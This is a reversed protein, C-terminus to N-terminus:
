RRASTAGSSWRGAPNARSTSSSSTVAPGCCRASTCIATAASAAARRDAPGDRRATAAQIEGGRALAAAAEDQLPTPLEGLQKALMALSDGAQDRMTQYLSRQYLATFPEPAFAPDDVAALARHLQPRGSAWCIRPISTVASRCEGLTEPAARPRPCRPPWSRPWTPAGSAPPLQRVHGRARLVHGVQDLTYEWADGQNTVFQQLIALAAPEGASASLGALRRRRARARLRRRDTGPRDRPRPQHGARAPPLGEPDAPRRLRHQHQEARQPRAASGTRRRAHAGRFAPTPHASVFATRGDSAAARRRGRELLATDFGPVYLADYLLWHPGDPGSPTIRAVVAQPFDQAVRDADPWRLCWRWRCCTSSARM